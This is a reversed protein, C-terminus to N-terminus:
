RSLAGRGIVGPDNAVREAFRNFNSLMREALALARNAGTAMANINNYLEASNMLKQISGNTNLKGNGDQLTESLLQLSYVIRGVRAVTQGVSTTPAESPGRGLDTVMPAFDELMKDLKATNRALQKISERLNAQTEADFTGGLAQAAASFNKLTPGVDSTKIVGRVDDSLDGIKTLFADIKDAKKTIDSLGVAAVEIAKLTGKVEAFAETAAELAHAPDPTITGEVIYKMAAEPTRSTILTEQSDGPLMDVWVDGILGRTIRPTSGARLRYRNDISLTVLVGDPQDPREDFQIATVEGIRIGSKRVPIGDSVGPAQPYHVVLYRHDRFLAPSEGFWIILMALVLGAVIVFMGLRFQLIRENTM